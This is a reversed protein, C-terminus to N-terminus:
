KITEDFEQRSSTNEKKCIENDYQKILHDWIRHPQANFANNNYKIMKAIRENELLTTFNIIPLKITQENSMKAIFWQRMTWIFDSSYGLVIELLERPVDYVERGKDYEYGQLVSKIMNEVLKSDMCKYEFILVDKDASGTQYGKERKKFDKTRGIKYVYKYNATDVSGIKTRRIYVGETEHCVTKALKDKLREQEKKAEAADKQAILAQTKYELMQKGIFKKYSKEMAIYYTRVMRGRETPAQMSLMKFCDVTLLIEERAKGGYFNLLENSIFDTGRVCHHELVKKVNDKRAYGIWKMAKDLDIVFGDQDPLSMIFEGVFDVDLKPNEQIIFQQLMGMDDGIIRKTLPIDEDDLIKDPEDQVNDM